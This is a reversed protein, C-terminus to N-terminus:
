AVPEAWSAARGVLGRLPLAVVIREVVLNPPVGVEGKDPDRRALIVVLWSEHRAL